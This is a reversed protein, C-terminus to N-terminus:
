KRGNTSFSENLAGYFAAPQDDMIFHYSNDIRFFTVENLPAYQEEYLKTMEEAKMGMRDDHAYIVSVPTKIARLDDRIDTTTLELMADLVVDRNSAAGDKFIRKKADAGQAYIRASQAQMADYAAKPTQRMQGVMQEAQATTNAVTAAPNFLVSYFPLSDVVIVRSLRDPYDRAVHLATFGGLSHGVIVSNHIDEAKLYESVDLALGEIISTREVTSKPAGGFGAVQVVHLRHTQKFRAVTAEWVSASSALGPILIVDPGAGQRTVSIWGSQYDPSSAVAIRPETQMASVSQITTAENGCASVSYACLSLLLARGRRMEQKAFITSLM